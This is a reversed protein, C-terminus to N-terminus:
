YITCSYLTVFNKCYGFVFLNETHIHTLNMRIYPYALQVAVVPFAYAVSLARVCSGSKLSHVGFIGLFLTFAIRGSAGPNENEIAMWRSFDPIAM